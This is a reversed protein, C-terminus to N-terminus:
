EYAELYMKKNQTDFIVGFEKMLLMGIMGRSSDGVEPDFYDVPLDHITYSGLELM